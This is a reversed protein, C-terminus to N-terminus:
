SFVRGTADSSLKWIPLSPPLVVTRASILYGALRIGMAVFASVSTMTTASTAMVAETSNAAGDTADALL